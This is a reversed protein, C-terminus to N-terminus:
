ARVSKRCQNEHFLILGSVLVYYAGHSINATLGFRELIQCINDRKKRYEGSLGEYYARDLVTLGRAVGM